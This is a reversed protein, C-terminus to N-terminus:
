TPLYYGIPVGGDGGEGGCMFPPVSLDRGQSSILNSLTTVPIHTPPSAYSYTGTGTPVTSNFVMPVFCM